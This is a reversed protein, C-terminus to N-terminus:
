RHTLDRLVHTELELDDLRSKALDGLSVLGALHGEDDLVPVHRQRRLTMRAMVADVEDSLRCTIVDTAAVDRAHLSLIGEEHRVLGTVVDRESLVGVPRGDDNVVVLCGVATSEMRHLAVVMPTQPRITQVERGKRDLIASIKM